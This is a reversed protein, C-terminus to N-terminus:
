TWINYILVVLYAGVIAQILRTIVKAQMKMVFPAKAEM